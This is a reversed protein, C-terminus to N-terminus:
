TGRRCANWELLIALRVCCGWCRRSNKACDSGNKAEYKQGMLIVNACVLKVKGSFWISDSSVTYHYRVKGGGVAVSAQMLVCLGEGGDAWV